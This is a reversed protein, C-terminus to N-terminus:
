RKRPKTTRLRSLAMLRLAAQHLATGVRARDVVFAAAEYTNKFRTDTPTILLYVHSTGNDITDALRWGEIRAQQSAADTWTEM